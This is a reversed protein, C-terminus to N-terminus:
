HRLRLAPVINQLVYDRLAEVHEGTSTAIRFRPHGGALQIYGTAAIVKRIDADLAELLVAVEAALGFFFLLFLKM